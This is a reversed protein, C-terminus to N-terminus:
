IKVYFPTIVSQINSPVFNDLKQKMSRLQRIDKVNPIMINESTFYPKLIKLAEIVFNQCNFNFPDYREQIWKNNEKKAITDLFTSFSIQYDAKINFEIYGLNGFEKCFDDYIKGYYRLGGKNDYHYIVYKKEVYNKEDNCMNPNYDGFEILIGLKKKLKSFNVEDDYDIKEPLLLLATHKVKNILYSAINIYSFGLICSAITNQGWKKIIDTVATASSSSRSSFNFSLKSFM